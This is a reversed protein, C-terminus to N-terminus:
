LADGWDDDGAGPDGVPVPRGPGTRAARPERAPTETEEYAGSREDAGQYTPLDATLRDLLAFIPEHVRRPRPEEELHDEAPSHRFGLSSVFFFRAESFSAAERVLRPDLEEEIWSRVAAGQEERRQWYGPELHAGNADEWFPHDRELVLDAKTVAVALYKEEPLLPLARHEVRREQTELVRRYAALTELATPQGNHAWPIQRPEGTAGSGDPSRPPFALPDAMLVVGQAYRLFHVRRLRDEQQFIEGGLDRFALLVRRGDRLNELPLAMEDDLRDVTSPLVERDHFLPDLLKERLPRLHAKDLAVRWDEGGVGGDLLQHLVTALFHTKGSATAGVVAIVRDEGRDLDLPQRCHPCVSRLHGIQRCHPCPGDLHLTPLQGTEPHEPRLWFDWGDAFLFRGDRRGHDDRVQRCVESRCVVGIRPRQFPVFCHRCFM